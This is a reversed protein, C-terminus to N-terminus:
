PVEIFMIADASTRGPESTGRGAPGPNAAAATSPPQMSSSRIVRLCTAAKNRTVEAATAVQARRPRSGSTRLSAPRGRYRRASTSANNRLLKLPLARHGPLRAPIAASGTVPATGTQQPPTGARDLAKPNRASRTGPLRRFSIMAM